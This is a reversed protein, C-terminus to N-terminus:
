ELTKFHEVMSPLVSSDYGINNIKKIVENLDKGLYLVSAIGWITSSRAGSRCFYLAKQNDNQSGLWILSRPSSCAQQDFYITDKLFSDVISNLEYQNSIVEKSKMVTFSFRNPFTLERAM